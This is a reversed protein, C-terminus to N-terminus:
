KRIFSVSFHLNTHLLDQIAIIVADLKTNAHHTKDLKDVVGKCDTEFM